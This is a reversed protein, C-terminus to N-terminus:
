SMWLEMQHTSSCSTCTRTTRCPFYILDTTSVMFTTILNIINTNKYRLQDLLEKERIVHREKNLKCIQMKNVAKIAVHTNTTKDLALDVTGYAGEGLSKITKYNELKNSGKKSSKLMTQSKAVAAEEPILSNAATSLEKEQNTAQRKLSVGHM